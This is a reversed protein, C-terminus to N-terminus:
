AVMGPLEKEGPVVIYGEKQMNRVHKIIAIKAAQTEGPGATCAEMEMEVEKMKVHPLAETAKKFYEPMSKLVTGLVKVSLTSTVEALTGTDWEMIKDVTLMQVRLLNAWTKDEKEIHGLLTEQKKSDSSELLMMLQLFGDKQKKYRALMSM